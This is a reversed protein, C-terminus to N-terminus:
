ATLFYYLRFAVLHAVYIGLSNHAVWRVAAPVFGPARGRRLEEAVMARFDWLLAVVAVVPVAAVAFQLLSFGLMWQNFALYLVTICSAFFLTGRSGEFVQGRHRVLWGFMAFLMGLTGYESVQAALPLLAAMVAAAAWFRLRSKEAFEMLPVIALRTAIITPLASLPLPPAGTLLDAAVLILAGAWVRWSSKWGANYGCPFFWAPAFLRLVRSWLNDTFFYLGIHDLLFVAVGVTYFESTTLRFKM